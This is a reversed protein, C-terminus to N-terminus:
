PEVEQSEASLVALACLRALLADRQAKDSVDAGLWEACGQPRLVFQHVVATMAWVRFRVEADPLRRDAHRVLGAFAEMTERTLSPGAGGVDLESRLALTAAVPEDFLFDCVRVLNALLGPGTSGPAMDRAAFYDGIITRVAERVLSEKAGFHYNVANLNAGARDVVRRITVQEPARAERILDVTADLIATRTTRPEENM